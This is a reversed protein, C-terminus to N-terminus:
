FDIGNNLHELVKLWQYDITYGVDCYFGTFDIYM